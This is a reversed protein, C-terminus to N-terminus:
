IIKTGFLAAIAGSAINDIRPKFAADAPVKAKSGFGGTMEYVSAASYGIAFFLIRRM